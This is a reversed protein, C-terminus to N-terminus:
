LLVSMKKLLTQPPGGVKPPNAGRHAADRRHSRRQLGPVLWGGTRLVAHGPLQIFGLM